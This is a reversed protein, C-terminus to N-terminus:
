AATPTTPYHEGAPNTQGIGEYGRASSPCEADDGLRTTTKGGVGVRQGEFSADVLVMGAVEQPYTAALNRVVPGGYSHGVLVFPGPERLKSLADRLEINLSQVLIWDFSFDGLGNEVVVTPSEKETCNVHLRHRGLGGVQRAAEAGLLNRNCCLNLKRQSHNRANKGASLDAVDLRRELLYEIAVARLCGLGCGGISSAVWRGNKGALVLAAKSHSRPGSNYSVPGLPATM